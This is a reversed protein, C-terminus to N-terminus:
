SRETLVVDVQGETAIRRLHPSEDAYRQAAHSSRVVLPGFGTLSAILSDALGFSLFDVDPDPRLLRFPLVM